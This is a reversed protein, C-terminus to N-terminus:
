ALLQKHFNLYVELPHDDMDTEKLEIKKMLDSMIAKGKVPFMALIENAIKM